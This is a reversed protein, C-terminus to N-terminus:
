KARLLHDRRGDTCHFSFSIAANVRPTPPRLVPPRLLSPLGVRFEGIVSDTRFSRSDVVQPIFLLFFPLDLGFEGLTSSGWVGEQSIPPHKGPCWPSPSLAIAGLM